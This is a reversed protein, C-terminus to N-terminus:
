KVFIATPGDAGGIVGIATETTPVTRTLQEAASEPDSERLTMLPLDTNEEIWATCRAADIPITIYTSDMGTFDYISGRVMRLQLDFGLYSETDFYEEDLVTWMYGMHSDKSDPVVCENYFRAAEDATLEASVNKWEGDEDMYGGSIVAYDVDAPTVARGHTFDIRYDVAEQTNLVAALRRVNSDPDARNEADDAINYVRKMEKGSRLTYEISLWQTDEASENIDKQAIVEEHFAVIGAINEPQRIKEDTGYYTFSVSEVDAPDPTRREYGTVDMEAGLTLVIIVACSVVFGRWKGRFVSLTKQMLMESVFYGVFAGGLLMALVVLATAAASRVTYGSGFLEPSIALVIACGFTMCYKFIPKLVPIAVVDGAREMDRRRYIFLACVALILGAACYAAMLATGNVILDGTLEYRGEMTYVTEQGVSVNDIVAIIPSLATGCSRGASFGYILSGLVSQVGLEVVAAACGLVLYVAPLVVLSGTLVACFAAFGYFAINGMVAFGLALFINKTEVVGTRAYVAWAAAIVIVDAVIFPVLGTIFATAFVTERRVPLANMMGCSRSSYMYSYMLMAAIIGAFISMEAMNQGLRVVNTNVNVTYSLIDSYRRLEPVSQPLAILWAALYTTWLPWCRKLWSRSLGWNFFSTKQAM